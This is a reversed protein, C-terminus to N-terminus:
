WGEDRPSKGPQDSKPEPIEREMLAEYRCATGDNSFAEICRWGHFGLVKLYQKFDSKTKAEVWEYEWKKM